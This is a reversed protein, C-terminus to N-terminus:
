SQAKHENQMEQLIEYFFKVSTIKMDIAQGMYKQAHVRANLSKINNAKEIAIKLEAKKIDILTLITRQATIIFDIELCRLEGKLKLIKRYSDSIGFTDIYQDTMTQLAEELQNLESRKVDKPEKMVWVLDNTEQIQLWNHIPMEDISNYFELKKNLSFLKGM